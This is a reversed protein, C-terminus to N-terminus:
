WAMTSLIDAPDVEGLPWLRALPANAFRQLKKSGSFLQPQFLESM